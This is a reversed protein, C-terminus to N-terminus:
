TYNSVVNNMRAGRSAAATAAVLELPPGRLFRCTLLRGPGPPRSNRPPPTSSRPQRTARAAPAPPQPEPVAALHSVRKRAPSRGRRAREDRGRRQGVWS